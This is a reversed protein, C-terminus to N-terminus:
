IKTLPSKHTWTFHLDNEEVKAALNEPKEVLIDDDRISPLMDIVKVTKFPYLPYDGFFVYLDYEGPNKFLVHKVYRGDNFDM